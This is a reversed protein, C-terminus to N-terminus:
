LVAYLFWTVLHVLCLFCDDTLMASCIYDESTTLIGVNSVTKSTMFLSHSIPSFIM